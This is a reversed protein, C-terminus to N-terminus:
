VTTYVLIISALSVSGFCLAISLKYDLRNLLSGIFTTSILLLINFFTQSYALNLEDMKLSQAVYPMSTAFVFFAANFVILFAYSLLIQSM